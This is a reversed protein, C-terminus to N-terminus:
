KAEVEKGNPIVSKIQAELLRLKERREAFVRRFTEYIEKPNNSKRPREQKIM